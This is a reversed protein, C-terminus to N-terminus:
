PEIDFNKDFKEVKTSKEYIRHYMSGIQLKISGQFSESFQKIKDIESCVQNMKHELEEQEQQNASVVSRNEGLGHTGVFISKTEENSLFKDSNTKNEMLDNICTALYEEKQQKRRLQQDTLLKSKRNQQTVKERLLGDNIRNCAKIFQRNRNKRIDKLILQELEFYTTYLNETGVSLDEYTIKEELPNAPRTIFESSDINKPTFCNGCTIGM